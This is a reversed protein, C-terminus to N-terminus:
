IGIDIDLNLFDGMQDAFGDGKSAEAVVDDMNIDGNFQFSKAWFKLAYVILWPTGLGLTFIPIAIALLILKLLQFGTATFNLNVGEFYTHQARYKRLRVIFWPFYLRVDVSDLFLWYINPLYM